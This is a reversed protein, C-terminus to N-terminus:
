GSLGTSMKNALEDAETADGKNSASPLDLWAPSTALWATYPTSAGSVPCINENLMNEPERVARYFM